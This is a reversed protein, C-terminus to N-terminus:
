RYFFQEWHVTDPTQGTSSFGDYHSQCLVDRPIRRQLLAPLSFRRHADIGNLGHAGMMKEYPTEDDFLISGLSYAIGQRTKALDFLGTTNLISFLLKSWKAELYKLKDWRSRASITIVQSRQMPISANRQGVVQQWAPWHAPWCYVCNISEIRKWAVYASGHM